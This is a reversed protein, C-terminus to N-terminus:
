LTNSFQPRSITRTTTSTRSKKLTKSSSSSETDRLNESQSECWGAVGGGRRNSLGAVCDRLVVALAKRDLGCTDVRALRLDAAVHTKTLLNLLHPLLTMDRWYCVEAAVNGDGLAYRLHAVTCETRGVLPELLSSKFPLVGRGDSSTGEPFLVLLAGGAVAASMASAV